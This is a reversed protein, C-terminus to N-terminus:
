GPNRRARLFYPVFPVGRLNPNRDVPEYDTRHQAREELPFNIPYSARPSRASAFRNKERTGGTERNIARSRYFEFAKPERRDSNRANRRRVAFRKERGKPALQEDVSKRKLQDM